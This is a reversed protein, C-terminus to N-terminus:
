VAPLNLSQETIVPLGLLVLFFLVTFGLVWYVLGRESLLHMFYCAVLGAKVSAILLAVVVAAAMALNAYSILVTTLTLFALAVFVLVYIRVHKQIDTVSHALDM